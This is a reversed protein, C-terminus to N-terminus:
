VLVFSINFLHEYGSVIVHVFHNTGLQDVGDTLLIDAAIFSVPESVGHIVVPDRFHPVVAALLGRLRIEDNM